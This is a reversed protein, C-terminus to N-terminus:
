NMATAIVTVGDNGILSRCFGREDLGDFLRGLGDILEVGILVVNM